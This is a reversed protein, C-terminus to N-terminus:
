LDCILVGPVRVVWVHFFMIMKRAGGEGERVHAIVCVSMLGLSRYIWGGGGDERM